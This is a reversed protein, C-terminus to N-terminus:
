ATGGKSVVVVKLAQKARCLATRFQETFASPAQHKRSRGAVRSAGFALTGRKVRMRSTNAKRRTTTAAVPRSRKKSGSEAIKIQHKAISIKVRNRLVKSQYPTLKSAGLVDELKAHLAELRTDCRKVLAMADRFAVHETNKHRVRRFISEGKTNWHRLLWSAARADRAARERETGAGGSEYHAASCTYHNLRCVTGSAVLVSATLHYDEKPSAEAPIDIKLPPDIVIFDMCIYQRYSTAPWQLQEVVHSKPYVGGLPAGVLRMEKLLTNAMEPLTIRRGAHCVWKNVDPDLRFFGHLDDAMFAVPRKQKTGLKVAHELTQAIRGTEKVNGAGAKQYAKRDGDAVFWHIDKFLEGVLSRVQDIKEPRGKSFVIYIFKTSMGRRTGRFAVVPRRSIVTFALTGWLAAVPRRSIVTFALTPKSRQGARLARLGCALSYAGLVCVM